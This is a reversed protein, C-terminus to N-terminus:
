KKKITILAPNVVGKKEDEVGFQKNWYKKFEDGRPHFYNIMSAMAGAMFGTIGSDKIGLDEAEKPTKGEDLFKCVKVVVEIVGHGYEDQNKDVSEEWEKELGKKTTIKENKKM